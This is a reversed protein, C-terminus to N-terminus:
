RTSCRAAPRRGPPSACATRASSTRSHGSPAPTSVSPTATRTSRCATPTASAMATRIRTATSACCASSRGRPELLRLLPLRAHAQGSDARRGGRDLRPPHRLHRGLRHGRQREPHRGSRRGLDGDALRLPRRDPRRAQHLEAHAPAPLRRVAGAGRRHRAPRLRNCRDQHLRSHRRVRHANEVPRGPVIWM